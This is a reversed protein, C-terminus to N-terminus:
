SASHMVASWRTSDVGPRSRRRTWVAQSLPYAYDRLRNVLGAPELGGGCHFPHFRLAEADEPLRAGIELRGLQRFRGGGRALALAFVRGGRPVLGLIFADDGARYPLSSSYPRSAFGRAPLFIRHLLARDASSTVLMDQHRGPGYADPVRVAAGLLDPLPPPLGIARSFRVVAPWEGPRSLLTSAGPAWPAGDVRLTATYAPGRPHLGKASRLGALGAFAAGLGYGAADMALRGGPGLGRRASEGPNRV